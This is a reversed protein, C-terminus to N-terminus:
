SYWGLHQLKTRLCQQLRLARESTSCLNVTQKGVRLKSGAPRALICIPVCVSTRPEIGGWREGRVSIGGGRNEHEPTPQCSEQGSLTHLATSLQGKFSSRGLVFKLCVAQKRSRGVLRQSISTTDGCKQVRAFLGIYFTTSRDIQPPYLLTRLIPELM